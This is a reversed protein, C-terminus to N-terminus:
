EFIDMAAQGVSGCDIMPPDKPSFDDGWSLPREPM